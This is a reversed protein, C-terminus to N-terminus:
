GIRVAVQAVLVRGVFLRARWVGPKLRGPPGVRVNTGIRRERPKDVGLLTRGGPVVWRVTIVGRRPLAAFVFTAHVERRVGRLRTVPASNASGHAFARQVVGEPPAKLELPRRLVPLAAGGSTGRLELAYRGPMLRAPLRLAITYAGARVALRQQALVRPRPGTSLIRLTLTAPLNTRGTVTVDGRLRSQRYSAALRVRTLTVAPLSAPDVPPAGVLVTGAASAANGVADTATLTATFPGPAAYAHSATSGAGSGGDGFAWVPSGAALGAWADVVTAGFAGAEGTTLAGPTSVASIAPPSADYVAVRAEGAPSISAVLPNAAEDMAAFRFEGLGVVIAPSFGGGPGRVSALVEPGGTGRGVWAVVVSGAPHGALSLGNEGQFADGLPASAWASGVGPPRTAAHVRRQLVGPAQSDVESWAATATGDAAFVVRAAAAGSGTPPTGVM